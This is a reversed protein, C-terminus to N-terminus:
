SRFGKFTNERFFNISFSKFVERQSGDFLLLLSHPSFREINRQRLLNLAFYTLESPSQHMSPITAPLFYSRNSKVFHFPTKTAFSSFSSSDAFDRFLNEQSAIKKIWM